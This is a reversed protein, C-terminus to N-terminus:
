TWGCRSRCLLIVSFLQVISFPPFVCPDVGFGEGDEEVGALSGNYLDAVLIHM